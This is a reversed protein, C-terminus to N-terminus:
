YKTLNYPTCFITGNKAWGTTQLTAV